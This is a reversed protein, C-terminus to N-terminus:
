EGGITKMPYGFIGIALAPRANFTAELDPVQDALSVQDLSVSSAPVSFAIASIDASGFEVPCSEVPAQELRSRCGLSGAVFIVIALTRLLRCATAKAGERDFRSTKM